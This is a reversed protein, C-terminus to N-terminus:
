QKTPEPPKAVSDKVGWISTGDPKIIHIIESAPDNENVMKLNKDFFAAVDGNPMEKLQPDAM